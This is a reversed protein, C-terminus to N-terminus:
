SSSDSASKGQTLEQVDKQAHQLVIDKLKDMFQPDLQEYKRYYLPHLIKYGLQYFFNYSNVIADGVGFSQKNQMQKSMEHLSASRTFNAVELAFATVVPTLSHRLIEMRGKMIPNVETQRDTIKQSLEQCLREVDAILEKQQRVRMEVFDSSSLNCVNNLYMAGNLQHELGALNGLLVNLRQPNRILSGTWRFIRDFKSIAEVPVKPQNENSASASEITISSSVKPKERQKERQKGGFFSNLKDLM